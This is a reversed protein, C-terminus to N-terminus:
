RRSAPESSCAHDLAQCAPLLTLWSRPIGSASYRVAETSSGPEVM